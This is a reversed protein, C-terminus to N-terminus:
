TRWTVMAILEHGQPCAYGKGGLMGPMKREKFFLRKIGGKKKIEVSFPTKGHGVTIPKLQDARYTKQCLKCYASGKTQDILDLAAYGFPESREKSIRVPDASSSTLFDLLDNAEDM